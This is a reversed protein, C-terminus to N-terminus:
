PNYTRYFSVTMICNAPAVASFLNGAVVDLVSPNLEPNTNPSPFAVNTAAPVAATQGNVLVYFTGTCAMLAVSAGTPITFHQEANALLDLVAVTDSPVRSTYPASFKGINQM